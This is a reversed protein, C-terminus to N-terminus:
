RVGAYLVLGRPQGKAVSRVGLLVLGLVADRDTAARINALTSGLDPYPPAPANPATPVRPPLPLAGPPQLQPSPSPAHPLKSLLEPKPPPQPPPPRASKRRRPLSAAEEPTLRLTVPEPDPVTPPPGGPRRLEFVPEADWSAEDASAPESLDPSDWTRTIFRVENFPDSAQGEGPQGEGGKAMAYSSGSRRKLLISGDPFPSEIRSTGWVPTRGRADTAPAKDMPAALARLGSPYSELAERLAGYSARRAKVPCRLHYGVEDLGHTDRPDLVAVEVTGTAEDTSIPAVGLRHCLGPPLREMLASSPLVSTLPDPFVKALESELHPEDIAGLGVLARALPIGQTVIAYLAEALKEPSVRGSLVLGRGLEFTV